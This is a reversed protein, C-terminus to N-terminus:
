DRMEEESAVSTIIEKVMQKFNLRPMTIIVWDRFRTVQERKDNFALRVNDSGVQLLFPPVEGKKKQHTELSMLFTIEEDSM